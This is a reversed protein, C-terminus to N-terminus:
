KLEEALVEYKVITFQQSVQYEGDGETIALTAHPMELVDVFEYRKDNPPYPNPVILRGVQLHCAEPGTVAERNGGQYSNCIVTLRKKLYKGSFVGSRIITWQHTSNDYAVIRYGSEPQQAEKACGVLFGLLLAAAVAVFCGRTMM